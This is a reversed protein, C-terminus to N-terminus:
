RRVPQVSVDAGYWLRDDAVRVATPQVHLAIEAGRMRFSKRVGAPLTIPKFIKQPIRVDFGRALLAALREKLDVADLAIECSRPLDRIVADVVGWAQESPAVAVRVRLDPFRPTLVISEGEAAITFSGALTYDEPVVSGSIARTVDLDGCVVGAVGKSDWRFRVEANGEGGVLSVPLAVDVKDEGFALEPAGAKLLGQVRRINVELVYAGITRRSLLMRAKVDGSKGVRLDELTLITQGFVGTAVQEVISRTVSTPLGIMLDAPPAEALSREGSAIVVERWKEQLQDRQRTLAELRAATPLPPRRSLLVLAVAVAIVVLLLAVRTRSV